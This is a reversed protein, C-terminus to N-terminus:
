AREARMERRCLAAFVGATVVFFVLGVLHGLFVGAVVATVAFLAVQLYLRRPNPLRRGSTPAMWVSWIAAAVGPLAVAGVIQGFVSEAVTAGALALLVLMSLECLFSLLELVGVRTLPVVGDVEPAERAETM